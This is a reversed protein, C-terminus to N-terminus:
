VIFVVLCKGQQSVVVDYQGV